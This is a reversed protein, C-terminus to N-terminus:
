GHHMLDVYRALIRGTAGFSKLLFGCKQNQVWGDVIFYRTREAVDTNGQELSVQGFLTVVLQQKYVAEVDTLYLPFIPCECIVYALQDDVHEPFYTVVSGHPPPLGAVVCEPSIRTWM